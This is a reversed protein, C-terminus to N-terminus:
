IHVIYVSVLNTNNSNCLVYKSIEVIFTSMSASEGVGKYSLLQLWTTMTEGDIIPRVVQFKSGVARCQWPIKDNDDM